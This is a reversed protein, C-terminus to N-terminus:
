AASVTRIKMCGSKVSQWSSYEKSICSLILTILMLTCDYRWCVLSVSKETM